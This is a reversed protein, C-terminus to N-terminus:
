TEISLYFSLAFIFTAKYPQFQKQIIKDVRIQIYQVSM